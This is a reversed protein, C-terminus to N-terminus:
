FRASFTVGYTVPMGAYRVITDYPHSVNDWYFKNTVNKGWIEVRYRDDQTSLAARLDLLVYPPLRDIPAPGITAFSVSRQTVTAGVSAALRGSLDWRYDVSYNSSYKPTYPVAAGAYNQRIGDANTGVFKVVKADLYTGSAAIRLGRVPLWAIDLEGGDVTSKPVNQLNNLIGFIPQVTQTRIQKNTYDYHFGSGDVQLRHDFLSIKFGGEYDVVSEQVVPLYQYSTSASLMPFGGAKYGKTVNVYLLLNETPKYNLNGRASVNSQNLNAIFGQRVSFLTVPDLTICDTKSLPTIAVGPHFAAMLSDILADVGGGDGGLTCLQGHRDSETYRVGGEITLQRNIDWDVNGFTAYNNMEQKSYFPTSTLGTLDPATSGPFAYIQYEWVNSHEYNAGVVWRVHHTPSNAIRLEQFVSTVSGTDRTLEEDELAIGGFEVHENRDYHAYSTISTLTLDDTIAYDGRLSIQFQPNDSSPKNNNSFDAARADNPAFPYAEIARGNPGPGSAPVQQLSFGIYQPAIPESRDIGANVNLELKLKQSPTWDLLLRAAQRSVAGNMGGAPMFYSHQWPGASEAEFSLRAKLTDTLPGSVFGDVTFDDFRGYGADLGAKPTDTPKAAIYNIAGGTSNQGFLVGQPGKLVEVRELDLGVFSTLVPLPLPVQDVYVSVDPYASLTTEYLGVGRLTYVPTDLLSPAYTLGPVVQSLDAVTHINQAKMADGSLATIAMGVKNISESRKQATVIIEGVTPGPEAAPAAATSDAAMAAGSCSAM